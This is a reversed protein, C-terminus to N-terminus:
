VRWILVSKTRVENDRYYTKNNSKPKHWYSYRSLCLIFNLFDNKALFTYDYIQFDSMQRQLLLKWITMMIAASVLAMHPQLSLNQHKVVVIVLLLSSGNDTWVIIYLFAACFLQTPVFRSRMKVRKFVAM